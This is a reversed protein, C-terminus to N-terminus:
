LKESMIHFRSGFFLQLIYLNQRKLMIALFWGMASNRQQVLNRKGLAHHFEM